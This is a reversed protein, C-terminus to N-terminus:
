SDDRMNLTLTPSTLSMKLDIIEEQWQHGSLLLKKVLLPHFKCYSMYPKEEFNRLSLFIRSM